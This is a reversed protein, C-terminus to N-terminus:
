EIGYYSKVAMEIKRSRSGDLADLATLVSGTMTATYTQAREAMPKTPRKNEKKFKNTMQKDRILYTRIYYTYIIGM